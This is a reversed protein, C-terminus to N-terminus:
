SREGTRNRRLIEEMDPILESAFGDEVVVDNWIEFSRFGQFILMKLGNYARGGCAKIRKMFETESPNFIVDYGIDTLKYFEDDKIATNGDDPHMGVSTCQIAIWPSDAFESRKMFSIYDDTLAMTEITRDPYDSRFRDALAEASSVTRNLILVSKAGEELLGCLVANAAGGAGIMVVNRGKVDVGDYKLARCFGPMDTNYGAFSDGKPKLTNVAGIRAANPDVETLYQMVEKKYPVTVNFGVAKMAIGGEIVEKLSGPETDFGLYVMNIGMHSALRGQLYPSLSHGVPHGILGALRTFTDVLILNDTM